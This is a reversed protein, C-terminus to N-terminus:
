YGGGGGGGGRSVGAALLLGFVLQLKATGGVHKNLAAGEEALVLKTTKAALPASLGPLLWAKPADCLM